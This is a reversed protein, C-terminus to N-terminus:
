GEIVGLPEGMRLSQGAEIDGRLRFGPNSFLLIVTSGLNFVGLEGGAAVQEPHELNIERRYRLPRNSELDHFKLGIRGVCTAGVKIVAVRGAEESQVFSILRENIAFLRQVHQVSFPNVPFLQGPIYSIKTVQGAIPSHIRHYNYPALYITAYYGGSFRSAELGSDLLESLRYTHGKAQVLTDDTLPGFQTIRGDVPSVVDRPGGAAIERAGEKLKRTFFANVSRYSDLPLEAEDADAGVIRSFTRHAPERLARPLPIDSAAGVVRSVVNKPMLRLAGMKLKDLV